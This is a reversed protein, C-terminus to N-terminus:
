KPLGFHSCHPDTGQSKKSLCQQEGTMLPEMYGSTFTVLSLWGGAGVGPGVEPEGTHCPGPRGPKRQPLDVPTLFGLSPGSPREARAHTQARGALVCGFFSEDERGEQEKCMTAPLMPLDM